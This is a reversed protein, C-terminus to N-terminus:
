IFFGVGANGVSYGFFKVRCGVCKIRCRLSGADPTRSPMSASTHSFIKAHAKMQDYILAMGLPLDDFCRHAELAQRTLGELYLPVESM